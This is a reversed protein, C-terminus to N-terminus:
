RRVYSLVRTHEAANSWRHLIPSCIECCQLAHESKRNLDPLSWLQDWRHRRVWPNNPSPRWPHTRLNKWCKRDNQQHKTARFMRWRWSVSLWGQFMLIM